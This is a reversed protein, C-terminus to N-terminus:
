NLSVGYRTEQELNKVPKCGTIKQSKGSQYNGTTYRLNYAIMWNQIHEDVFVLSPPCPPLISFSTKMRAEEKQLGKGEKIFHKCFLIQKLYKL